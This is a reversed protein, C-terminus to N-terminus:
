SEPFCRQTQLDGQRRCQVTRLAALENDLALRFPKDADVELADDGIAATAAMLRRLFMAEFDIRCALLAADCILDVKPSSGGDLRDNAVGFGLM